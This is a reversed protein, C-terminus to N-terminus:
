VCTCVCLCVLWVVNKKESTCQTFAEAEHITSTATDVCTTVEELLLYLSAFVLQNCEGSPLHSKPRPSWIQTFTSIICMYFVRM